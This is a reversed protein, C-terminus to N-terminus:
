AREEPLRETESILVDELLNKGICHEYVIVRKKECVFLDEIKALSDPLLGLISLKYLIQSM